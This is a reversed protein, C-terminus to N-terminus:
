RQRARVIISLIQEEGLAKMAELRQLGEVLVFRNKAEDRRVAIPMQLGDELISGAIEEVKGPDIDHKRKAPVYIEAIPILVDEM